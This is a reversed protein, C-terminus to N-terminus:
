IQHYCKDLSPRGPRGALGVLAGVVRSNVHASKLLKVCFNPNDEDTIWDLPCETDTDTITECPDYGQVLVKSKRSVQPNPSAM